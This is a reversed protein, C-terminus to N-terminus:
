CRIIATKVDETSWLKFVSTLPRTALIHRRKDAVNNYPRAWAPTGWRNASKGFLNKGFPFLFLPSFFPSIHYNQNFIITQDQLILIKRHM